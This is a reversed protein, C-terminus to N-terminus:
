EYEINGFRALLKPHIKTGYFDVNEKSYSFVATSFLTVAKDFNVGLVDLIESPYTENFVTIEPFYKSYDTKERPHPKIVLKSPEYKSIIDKYLSIKESESLINDESLPQTFLVTSKGNLQNLKYKDVNLLHFIKNKEDETKKNWLEKINIFEVKDKICDPVNEKKTLYIKVVNKHMGFKPLSCLKNKWSREYNKLQYNETGDEILYFKYRKLFFASGLIHDAGYCIVEEKNLKNKYLIYLMSFKSIIKKLVLELISKPTSLTYFRNKELKINKDSLFFLDRDSVRNILLFLFLMRLNSIFIVRIM